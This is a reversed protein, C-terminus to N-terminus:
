GEAVLREALALGLGDSGGTILVVKGALELDM